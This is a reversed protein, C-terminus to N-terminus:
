GPEVHESDHLAGGVASPLPRWEPRRRLRLQGIARKEVRQQCRLRRGSQRRRQARAFAICLFGLHVVQQRLIHNGGLSLSGIMFDPRRISYKFKPKADTQVTYTWKDGWDKFDSLIFHAALTSHDSVKYDAGMTGGWRLRQYRYERLDISDYYPTATGDPNLDPIPEIDNIGRGNYDYGASMIVGWRKSAGFRKGLTIDAQGMYRDNEIPTM